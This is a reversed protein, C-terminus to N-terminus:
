CDNPLVCEVRTGHGPFTTVRVMGGLGTAREQMGVIGFSGPNPLDVVGVGDDTVSLSLQTESIHITVEARQARSHRLVNALAERAISMAAALLEEALNDSSGHVEIACNIGAARLPAASEEMSEALSRTRNVEARLNWISRRLDRLSARALSIASDIALAPKTTRPLERKAAELNLVVATLSQTVSDHIDRALRSRERLVAREAGRETLQEDRLAVGLLTAATESLVLEDDSLENEVQWALILLGAVRGASWVPFSAAMRLGENQDFLSGALHSRRWRGAVAVVNVFAELRPALSGTTMSGVTEASLGRSYILPTAGSVLSRQYVVAAQAGLVEALHGVADAIRKQPSATSSLQRAITGLERALM